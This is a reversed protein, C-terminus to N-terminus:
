PNPQGQRDDCRSIQRHQSSGVKALLEHLRRSRRCWARRIASRSRHARRRFRRHYDEPQRRQQNKMGGFYTDALDGRVQLGAQVGFSFTTYTSPSFRSLDALETINFKEITEGSVSSVSRPTDLIKQSLGLVDIPQNPLISNPDDGGVGVFEEIEGSVETESTVATQAHAISGGMLGLLLYVLHRPARHRRSSKGRLNTQTKM